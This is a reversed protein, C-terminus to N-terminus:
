TFFRKDAGNALLGICSFGMQIDVVSDVGTFSRKHTLSAVFVECLLPEEIIM